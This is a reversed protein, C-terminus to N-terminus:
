VFGENLKPYLEYRKYKNDPDDYRAYRGVLKYSVIWGAKKLIEFILDIPTTGKTGNNIREVLQFDIIPIRSYSKRKFKFMYVAYGEEWWSGTRKTTGGEIEHIFKMFGSEIKQRDKGSANYWNVNENCHKLFIKYKMDIMYDHRTYM